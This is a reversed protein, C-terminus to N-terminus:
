SFALLLRSRVMLMRVINSIIPTHIRTVSICKTLGNNKGVGWSRHIAMPFRTFCKGYSRKAESKPLIMGPNIAPTVDPVKIPTKM